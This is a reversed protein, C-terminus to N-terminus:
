LFLSSSFTRTTNRFQFEYKSYSVYLEWETTQTSAEPQQGVQSNANNSNERTSVSSNTSTSTSESELSTLAEVLEDSQMVPANDAILAVPAVIGWENLINRLLRGTSKSDHPTPFKQLAITITRVTWNNTNFHVTVGLYAILSLSTWVDISVSCASTYPAIM